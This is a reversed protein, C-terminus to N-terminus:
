VLDLMVLNPNQKVSSTFIGDLTHTLFLCLLALVRRMLGLDFACMMMMLPAGDHGGISGLASVSCRKAQWEYSAVYVVSWERKELRFVPRTSTILRERIQGGGREWEVLRSTGASTDLVNLENNDMIQPSIVCEFLETQFPSFHFGASYGTYGAERRYLWTRRVRLHQAFQKCWETCRSSGASRPGLVVIKSIQAKVEFAEIWWWDFTLSDFTPLLFRWGWLKGWSYSGGLKVARTAPM